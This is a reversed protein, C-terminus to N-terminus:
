TAAGKLQLKLFNIREIVHGVNANYTTTWSRRFGHETKKIYADLLKQRKAQEVALEQQIEQTTM